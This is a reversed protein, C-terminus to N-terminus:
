AAARLSKATPWDAAWLANAIEVADGLLSIRLHRAVGEVKRVAHLVTTHDRGGIRRGADPLSRKAVKVMLWFAIQRAKVLDSKRRDSCIDKQAFGSVSAAIRLCEGANHAAGAMQGPTKIELREFIQPAVWSPRRRLPPGAVAEAALAPKPAARAEDVRRRVAAYNARMEAVSAFERVPLPGGGTM